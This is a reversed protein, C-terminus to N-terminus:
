IKEIILADTVNSFGSVDLTFGKVKAYIQSSHGGDLNLANFCALGNVEEPKLMLEALSTTTMQAEDTVVIIVQQNRTIGVATREAMGGKLRPIAGNIILRPGSQLAFEVSKQLRFSRQSAIQFRGYHGYLVGWWSIPKLRQRVVGNKVRLGLPKLEPSFFGGNIAILAKDLRALQKVSAAQLNHDKALSLSLRYRNPDIRFAHVRGWPNMGGPSIKSYELGPELTQWETAAHALSLPLLCTLILTTIIRM